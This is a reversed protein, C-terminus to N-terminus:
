RVMAKSKESWSPITFHIISIPLGSFCLCVGLEGHLPIQKEDDLNLRHPSPSFVLCTIAGMMLNGSVIELIAGDQDPTRQPHLELRQVNNAHVRENKEIAPLILPRIPRPGAHLRGIREPESRSEVGECSRSKLSLTRRTRSKAVWDM